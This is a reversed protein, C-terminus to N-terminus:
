LHSTEFIKDLKGKLSGDFQLEDNVILRIGAVLEPDIRSEIVDGPKTLAAVIKRQAAGLERASEITVKRIGHKGRVFRAAEEVIKRAHAEDGNRLLLAQFNKAIVDGGAGPATIAEALAKAYIHAPYKM